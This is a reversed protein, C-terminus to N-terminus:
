NKSMNQIKNELISIKSNLKDVIKIQQKILDQQEQIANILLYKIESEKIYHYKETVIDNADIPTVPDIYKDTNKVYQIEYEGVLEPVIEKLEQAVLGLKLSKDDLGGKANYNYTITNFKLVDILGRSLKRINSKLRKDSPTITGTSLINGNVSLKQPPAIYNPGIGVNGNATITLVPSSYNRVMFLRSNVLRSNSEKRADVMFAAVTSIRDSDQADDVTARFAGGLGATKSHMRFTPVLVGSSGNTVGFYGGGNTADVRFLEANGPPRTATIHMTATPSTTQSGVKVDGSTVVKLQSYVSTAILLFILTLVNYKM